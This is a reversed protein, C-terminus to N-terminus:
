SRMFSKGTTKAKSSGGGKAKAQADTVMERARREEFEAFVDLEEVNEKPEWTDDEFTYGVWAACWTNRASRATM